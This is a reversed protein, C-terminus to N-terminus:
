RQEPFFELYLQRNAQVCADRYAEYKHLFERGEPTLTSGGGDKGGTNRMTLPFGLAAEANKVLKLAKSYAMGMSLAAARLSGTEEVAKLLRCPGEGFFKEGNEDFFIIKTAATM